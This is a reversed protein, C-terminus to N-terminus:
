PDPSGVSQPPYGAGAQQPKMQQKFKQIGEDLRIDLRKRQIHQTALYYIAIGWFTNLDLFIIGLVLLTWLIGNAMLVYRKEKSGKSHTADRVSIILVAIGITALGIYAFVKGINM